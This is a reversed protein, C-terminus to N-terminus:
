LVQRFVKVILGDHLARDLDFVYSTVVAEGTAFTKVRSEAWLIAQEYNPNLYFGKGFDKGPRSMSLDISDIPMYSGHHLKIM